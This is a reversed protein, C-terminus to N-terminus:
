EGLKQLQESAFKAASTGPYNKVVASFDEKAAATDGLKLHTLGIKFHADALKNSKPFDFVKNFAELAKSYNGMAYYCEGIWYQANDALDHGPAVTLLETFGSIASEYRRSYYEDLAGKYATAADFGGPKFVSAAAPRPAPRKSRISNDLRLIQDNMFALNEKIEQVTANQETINTNIKNELDALRKSIEELANKTERITAANRDVQELIQNIRTEQQDTKPVPKQKGSSACGFALAAVVVPFVCKWVTKM